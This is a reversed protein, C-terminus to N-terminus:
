FADPQKLVLFHAARPPNCITVKLFSLFFFSLSCVNVNFFLLCKRNVNTDNSRRRRLLVDRLCRSSYGKWQLTMHFRKCYRCPNYPTLPSCQTAGLDEERERVSLGVAPGCLPGRMESRCGEDEWSPTEGKFRHPKSLTYSQVRLPDKDRGWGMLLVDIWLRRLQMMQQPSLLRPVLM